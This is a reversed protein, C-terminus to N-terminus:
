GEDGEGELAVQCEPCDYCLILLEEGCEPCNWIHIPGFQDRLGHECTADPHQCTLCPETTLHKM